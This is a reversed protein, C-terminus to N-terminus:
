VVAMTFSVNRCFPMTDWTQLFASTSMSSPPYLIGFALRNLTHDHRVHLAEHVLKNICLAIMHMKHKTM